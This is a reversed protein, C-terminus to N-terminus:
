VAELFYCVRRKATGRRVRWPSSPYPRGTAVPRRDIILLNSISLVRHGVRVATRGPNFSGVEPERVSKVAM